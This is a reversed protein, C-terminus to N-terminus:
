PADTADVDIKLVAATIIAPLPRDSVYRIQGNRDHEADVLGSTDGTYLPIPFDMRDSPQRNILEELPGTPAGHKLGVTELVRAIAKVVRQVLGQMTGGGMKAEPRLTVALATYALGVALIYTFPPVFQAPITLSGDGAVSLGPVVGGNALVAVPQGALWHLGTIHGEGGPLIFGKGGDVFFANQQAGSLTGVDNWPAQRWIERRVGDHRAREILLWLEDTRGDQGIISQASIVRAGGGLITRAWGKVELRTNAHVAVQGDGRVAHILTYPSREYALQVVGGTTVHRAAATLDVASYRDRAYDYDSSRIRRGGREVFLMETAVQVPNVPESGYFSQPQAQVNEGSLALQSNVQGIALEKQATGVVIRRDAVAWIPPNDTAITRRFGLDTAPQGTNTFTAFNVRGGGFDAVVSAVMDFDKFHIQRGSFHVVLAPWGAANSFLSHSWKWTPQTQVMGPMTRLVNGSASMGDGAVTAIKVIGFKDYAYEWLVGYPGKDNIDNHGQGDWESGETHIPTRSGTITGGRAVYAKSESRFVDGVLIGKMGPEWARIASFDAAEIRFQEGIHGANFIPASASITVIGGTGSATVTVGKDTNADAFPGNLLESNAHTFTLADLRTLAAPPHNPHDIYLRDFSQQTSLQPADSAAYPTGVQYPVGPSSEIPLGNTYFRVGHDSWELLYEQEVNFRFAGLWTASPAADQVYYFGPRKVIPGENICTFNECVALGYAYQDTDVRGSMLPDLEGGLFGSLLHRISPM